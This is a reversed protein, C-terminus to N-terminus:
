LCNGLRDTRISRLRELAKVVLIWVRFDDSDILADIRHKIWRSMRVNPGCCPRSPGDSHTPEIDTIGKMLAAFIAPREVVVKLLRFVVLM